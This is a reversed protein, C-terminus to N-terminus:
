SRRGYACSYNRVYQKEHTQVHNLQADHLLYPGSDCAM